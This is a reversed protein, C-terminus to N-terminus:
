AKYLHKEIRGYVGSLKRNSKLIEKARGYYREIDKKIKKRNTYCYLGTAIAPITLLYAFFTIGPDIGTERAFCIWDHGALSLDSEMPKWGRFLYMSSNFHNLMSSAMLGYGIRSHRKRLKYGILFLPLSICLESVSGAASIVASRTNVDFYKGLPSPSDENYCMWTLGLLKHNDYEIPKLTIWDIFTQMNPNKLFEKLNEHPAAVTEVYADKYLARVAFGHAEEHISVEPSINEYLNLSRGKLSEYLWHLEPIRKSVERVTTDPLSVAVGSALGILKNKKKEM